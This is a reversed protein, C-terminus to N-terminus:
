NRRRRRANRIAEERGFPVRRADSVEASGRMTEFSTLLDPQRRVRDDGHCAASMDWGACPAVVNGQWGQGVGAERIVLVGRSVLGRLQDAIQRVAESARLAVGFEMNINRADETLNASTTFAMMDDVVLGKAHLTGHCGRDDRPQQDAPWDFVEAGGLGVAATACTAHRMACCGAALVASLRRGKRFYPHGKQDSCRGQM